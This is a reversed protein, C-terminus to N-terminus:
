TGSVQPSQKSAVFSSVVPAKAEEKVTYSMSKRTVKGNSDKVDVYLTKTGIKGTKWTYTNSTGYDRLMGWNGNSDKILFKYQLTGSGTAKATLIVQTGSTQPSQKSATFSSVVPAKAEEKVTYSMSKREVKGNSDKVDVYLTKNGTKGTKWTYTNSTGYDRLMGWNGNSDKILFKYQLTGSGTAKATLIIETGSVQPSQKNATFSEINLNQSALKKFPILNDKAYTEAYSNENTYITLNDCDNFAFIGISTVSNPITISTLNDCDNFASYGISTVSNPIIISALNSCSYFSFDEISIVTNPIVYTNEKKISPYHILKSKDKNFLIGDESSFYKNNKDVNILGCFDFAISGISTVSSPIAISTLNSCGDFTADGISMVSNPITISTLNNCDWFAQSGINTVSNPITISTLNDCDGFAFNGISIVSNPIIYTKEEKISPYHILETKNKNFLIGNESSFHKNNKDVNILGCFDFAEMGISTVSDPITISTLNECSNFAFDGISTVTNPITVSKLNHCCDFASEGISTVSNPIIISTLNGCGWFTKEEISTVLNPITISTLGCGYFASSGISNVSNPITISTLNDCCGFASDGISNVSNPIKISILDRYAYFAGSGISTVSKGNIESPIELETEEGSYGTIAVENNNIEYYFTGRSTSFELTEDASAEKFDVGSFLFVCMIVTLICSLIKKLKEM